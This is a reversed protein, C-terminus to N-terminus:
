ETLIPTKKQEYIMRRLPIKTHSGNNEIQGLVTIHIKALIVEIIM